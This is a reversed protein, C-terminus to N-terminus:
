ARAPARVFEDRFRPGFTSNDPAHRALWDELRSQFAELDGTAARLAAGIADYSVTIHESDTPRENEEGGDAYIVAMDGGTDVWPAPGHGMWPTLAGQGLEDWGRWDSLVGCCSPELVFDGQRVILGGDVTLPEVAALLAVTEAVSAGAPVDNEQALIAVLLGVDGDSCVGDLVLWDRTPDHVAWDFPPAQFPMKVVPKLSLM